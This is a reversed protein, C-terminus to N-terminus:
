ELTDVYKYLVPFLLDPFAPIWLLETGSPSFCVVAGKVITEWKNSITKNASHRGFDSTKM